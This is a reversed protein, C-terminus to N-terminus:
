TAYQSAGSASGKTANGILAAIEAMAIQPFDKLSGLKEAIGTVVISDSYFNMYYRLAPNMKMIRLIAGDEKDEIESFTLQAATQLITEKNASVYSKQSENLSYRVKAIFGVDIKSM